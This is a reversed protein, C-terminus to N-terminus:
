ARDCCSKRCGSMYNRSFYDAGYDMLFKDTIRYDCKAEHNLISLVAGEVKRTLVLGEIEKCKAMLRERAEESKYEANNDGNALTYGGYTINASVYREYLRATKSDVGNLVLYVVADGADLHLYFDDCRGNKNTWRSGKGSGVYFPDGWAHKWLYVYHEGTEERVAKETVTTLYGDWLLRSTSVRNGNLVPSDNMRKIMNLRESFSMRNMAEQIEAFIDKSM